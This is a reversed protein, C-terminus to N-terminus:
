PKAGAPPSIFQAVVGAPHVRLDLYLQSYRNLAYPYRTSDPRLQPNVTSVGLGLSVAKKYTFTAEALFFNFHRADTPEQPTFNVRDDQAAPYLYQVEVGGAAVLGFWPTLQLGGELSHSQSWQANRSGTNFFRECDLPSGTCGTIAPSFREATTYRHFNINPGFSYGLFLGERVDFRRRLSVGPELAVQLTQARAALSTPLRVGAEAGVDILAGPITVIPDFAASLRVDGILTEGAYTTVDSETLERSFDVRGRLSLKPTFRWRADLGLALAVYPNYTLEAGRDLSLATASSRLTVRSERYPADGLPATATQAPEAAALAPLLAVLLATRM